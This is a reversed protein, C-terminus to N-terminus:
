IDGRPKPGLFAEKCYCDIVKAIDGTSANLFVDFPRLVPGFWVYARVQYVLQTSDRSIVALDMPDCYALLDPMILERLRDLAQRPTLKPEIDVDEVGLGRTAVSEVVGGLTITVRVQADRIPVSKFLPQYLVQCVLSRISKAQVYDEIAPQSIGILKLTLRDTGSCFRLYDDLYQTAMAEVSRDDADLFRGVSKSPANRCTDWCSEPVARTWSKTLTNQWLRDWLDHRMSRELASLTISSTSLAELTNSAGKRPHDLPVFELM